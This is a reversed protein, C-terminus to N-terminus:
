RVAAQTRLTRTHARAREIVDAISNRDWPKGVVSFLEGTEELERVEPKDVYGTIMVFAVTQTQRAVRVFTSGNMGPMGFDTLVVDFEREAMQALGDPGSAAVHVEYQKRWVRQFTSLNQVEDDVILVRPRTGVPDTSGTM